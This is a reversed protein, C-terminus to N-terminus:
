QADGVAGARALASTYRNLEEVTSRRKKRKTPRRNAAQVAPTAWRVNGPRYDDDNDIRDLSMGPPADGMDAYFEEFSQWGIGIGRGGYYSYKDHRPNFCRQQMNTWTRYARTESMGHTTLRKKSKERRLCGCSASHGIRLSTGCVGRQTGCDCRCLWLSKGDPSREPLLSVVLWRGFKRGTINIFRSM